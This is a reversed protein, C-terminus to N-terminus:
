GRTRLGGQRHELLVALRVSAEVELQHVAIPYQQLADAKRGRLFGALADAFELACAMGATVVPDHQGFAGGLRVGRGGEGRHRLRLRCTGRLLRALGSRLPLRPMASWSMVVM